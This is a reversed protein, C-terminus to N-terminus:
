AQSEKMVKPAAPYAMTNVPGMEQLHEVFDAVISELHDTTGQVVWEERLRDAALVLQKMTM